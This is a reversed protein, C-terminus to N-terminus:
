LNKWNIGRRKDIEMLAIIILRAVAESYASCIPIASQRYWDVTVEFRDPGIKTIHYHNDHNMNRLRRIVPSLIEAFVAIITLYRELILVM